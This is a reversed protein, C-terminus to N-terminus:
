NIKEITKIYEIEDNTFGYLEANESINKSFTVYRFKESDAMFSRAFKVIKKNISISLENETKM